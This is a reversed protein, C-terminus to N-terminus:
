RTDSTSRKARELAQKDMKYNGLQKQLEHLEEKANNLPEVLKRNEATLDTIHVELSEDKKKMQEVETKM